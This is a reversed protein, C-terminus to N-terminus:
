LLGRAAYENIKAKRRYSGMKDDDRYKLPRPLLTRNSCDCTEKM